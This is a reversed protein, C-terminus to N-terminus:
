EVVVKCGEAISMVLTTAQKEVGALEVVENDPLRITPFRQIIRVITYAAEVLAFDVLVVNAQINSELSDFYHSASSFSVELAYERDVM